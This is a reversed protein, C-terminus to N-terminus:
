SRALAQDGGLSTFLSKKLLAISGSSRSDLADAAVNRSIEAVVVRDADAVTVLWRFKVMEAQISEVRYGSGKEDLLGQIIDGLKRGQEIIRSEGFQEALVGRRYEEEPLGLKKAVTKQQATLEPLESKSAAMARQYDDVSTSGGSVFVDFQANTAM